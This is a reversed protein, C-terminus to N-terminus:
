AKGLHHELSLDLLYNLFENVLRNEDPRENGSGVPVIEIEYAAASCSAVEISCFASYAAIAEKLCERPYITESLAVQVSV